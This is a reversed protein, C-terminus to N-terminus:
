ERCSSGNKLDSTNTKKAETPHLTTIFVTFADLELGNSIIKGLASKKFGNQETEGSDYAQGNAKRV